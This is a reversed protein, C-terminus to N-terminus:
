GSFSKDRLGSLMKEIIKAIEQHTKEKNKSRAVSMSSEVLLGYILDAMLNLSYDSFIGEKILDGLTNRILGMTYSADIKRWNEWGLVTIAEQLRISKRESSMGYDLFAHCGAITREWPDSIDEIGKLVKSMMEQVQQEYAAKFLEEKNSFHHYLAGRTVRAKQVIDEISTKAYGKEAFLSYGEEILAKRTIEAYEERRTKNQM